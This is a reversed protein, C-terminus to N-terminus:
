ARLECTKGLPGALCPTVAGSAHVTRRENHPRLNLLARHRADFPRSGRKLCRNRPIVPFHRSLIYSSPIVTSIRSALSRLRTPCRNQASIRPFNGTGAKSVPKAPSCGGGAKARKALEPEALWGETWRLSILQRASAWLAFASHNECSARRGRDVPGRADQDQHRSEPHRADDAIVITTSLFPM